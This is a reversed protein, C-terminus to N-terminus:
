NRTLMRRGESETSTSVDKLQQGVFTLLQTNSGDGDDDDDEGALSTKQKIYYSM